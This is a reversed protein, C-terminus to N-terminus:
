AAEGAAAPAKAVPGLLRRVEALVTPDIPGAAALEAAKRHAADAIAEALAPDDSRDAHVRNYTPKEARIAAAEATAADARTPYEDVTTRAVETWWPKNGAHHSFRNKTNSTIGVYLLTDAADYLRYLFTPQHDATM